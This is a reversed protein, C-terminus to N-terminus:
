RTQPTPWLSGVLAGLLWGALVDTPYHLGLAMRAWSVGLAWITIAWAWEAPLWRWALVTVLAARAAHGSPFAHPDTKRYVGGWPSQPRERRVAYKIGTVILALGVVAILGHWAAARWPEPGRWALLALVLMVLPGDGSHALLHAMIRWGRSRYVPGQLWTAGRQDWTHLRRGLNM